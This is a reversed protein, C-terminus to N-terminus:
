AIDSQQNGQMNWKPCRGICSEGMLWMHMLGRGAAQGGYVVVLLCSLLRRQQLPVLSTHPHQTTHPCPKSPGVVYGPCPPGVLLLHPISSSSNSGSLLPLAPSAQLGVQLLM